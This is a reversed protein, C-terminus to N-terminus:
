KVSKLMIKIKRKETLVEKLKEVLKTEQIVLNEYKKFSDEHLGKVKNELKLNELDLKAKEEKIIQKLRNKTLKEQKKM